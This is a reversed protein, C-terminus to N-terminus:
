FHEVTFAWKGDAIDFSEFQTNKMNRLRKLHKVASPHKEDKIPERTAKDAAWCRELVLKAKVNLGTGPQPKDVDESDPYVSGEKDDFRVVEGFLAGLKPLGTLDVPELFHIEGYGKRGVILGEFASLESYGKKKLTALDPKSWYDGDELATEEAEGGADSSGPNRTNAATFRTPTSQTRAAPTPSAAPPKTPTGFAAAEKERAAVSLQPNFTVKPSGRAPSSGSKSFLDAPEVKKDLILKKVSQRGGSGLAPSGSRGLILDPTKATLSLAGPKGSGLTSNGFPNGGSGISSTFGRLKSNAPSYGLQVRPVPSRTPVDVFFGPKKKSQQSDLNVLRPGPPLLSFIPLNSGIPEAISATLTGQAGPATATASFSNGAGFLGTGTSTSMGLSPAAPKNFLSGGLTSQQNNSQGLSNGFLSTGQTQGPAANTSQGFAGFLNTTPATAPKNQGFLTGGFAGTAAGAQQQNQQQQNNAGFLSSGGFLSNGAAPQQQQTNGFLSTAPQQQNQQPQQQQANNGFIGGGGGFLSTQQQPQQQGAQNQQQNQGFLGTNGFTSQAPQAAPQGFLPKAANNNATNGFAGFANTTNAAPQAQGFINNAPQQQQPQGFANTTTPAAANNGFAGGSGFTGFGTAPKPQGFAGGNTNGGFISTSQQPQQAPQGFAGFGTQAPQQQQPQQQQGFAGGGFVSNTTPAATNQTGFAGFGSAPQATTTTGGGFISSPAAAPQAPTAGFISTTPQATAGGFAASQGFAGATKRGQAYDQVRIEEFSTGRYAPMCSIAQYQLM